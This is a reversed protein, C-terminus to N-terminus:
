MRRRRRWWWRCRLNPDEAVKREAAPRGGGDEGEPGARRVLELHRSLLKAPLACGLLAILHRLIDPAAQPPTNTSGGASAHAYIGATPTLLGRGRLAALVAHALVPPYAAFFADGDCCLRLTLRAMQQSMMRLLAQQEAESGPQRLCCFCYWFAHVVLVCAERSYCCATCPRPAWAPLGSVVSQLLEQAPVHFPPSCDLSFHADVASFDVAAASSSKHISQRHRQPSASPSPVPRLRQQPATAALLAPSEMTTPNAKATSPGVSNLTVAAAAAAAAAVLHALFTEGRSHDTREEGEGM